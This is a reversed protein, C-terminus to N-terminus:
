VNQYRVDQDEFQSSIEYFNGAEGEYAAHETWRMLSYVSLTRYLLSESNEVGRKVVVFRDM